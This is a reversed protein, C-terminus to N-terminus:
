WSSRSTPLHASKKASSYVCRDTRKGKADPCVLVTRIGGLEVAAVAVPDRREIYAQEAAADAIHVVAKTAVMRGFSTKPDSRYPSRRRTGRRLCTAYQADCHPAPRRRGLPLYKRVQRRLHSRSEGAHGAFVPELDGPSSSIVQLVESTATQQELAETLDATRQSLDNTRQRLENLLRANEIAIVAQAAFNKVLEIQKDTFPRVEHSLHRHRRDVREGQADPGLCTRVGASNSSRSSMRSRARQLTAEDRWDAFQHVAQKTAVMRGLSARQYQIPRNASGFSPLPPRRMIRQWSSSLTM